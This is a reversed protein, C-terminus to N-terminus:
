SRPSSSRGAAVTSSAMDFVFPPQAVGARRARDLQHRARRPPAPVVANNWVSTTVMSIFGRKVAMEAHAGRLALLQARHDRRHRDQRMEIALEMRPDHITGWGAGGDLLALAPTGRV